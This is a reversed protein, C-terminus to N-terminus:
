INGEKFKWMMNIQQIIHKWKEYFKELSENRRKVEKEARELVDIAVDYIPYLFLNDIYSEFNVQSYCYASDRDFFVYVYPPNIIVQFEKRVPEKSFRHSEQFIDSRIFAMKEFYKANAYEEIMNMIQEVFERQSQKAKEIIEWKAQVLKEIDSRENFSFSRYHGHEYWQRFVGQSCLVLYGYHPFHIKTPTVRFCLALGKQFLSDLEGIKNSINEAVKRIEELLSIIIEREKSNKIENYLPLHAFM